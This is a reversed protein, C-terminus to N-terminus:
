VKLNGTRESRNRLKRLQKQIRYKEAHRKFNAVIIANLPQLHRTCGEPILISEADLNHFTEKIKQTKHASLL